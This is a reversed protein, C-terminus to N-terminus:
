FGKKNPIKRHVLMQVSVQSFLMVEVSWFELELGLESWAQILDENLFLNYIFIYLYIIYGVRNVLLPSIEM